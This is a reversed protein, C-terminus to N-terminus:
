LGWGKLVEAVTAKRFCTLTSTQSCNVVDVGLTALQDAAIEFASRWLYFNEQENPNNANPWENRGYFHGGTADLGIVILRTVGFQALLNMGQFGSNRGSGIAMPADLLLRDCKADAIGVLKVDPYRDAILRAYGFKLGRFEPLGKRYKWWPLECCYVADAWPSLHVAAEKIALVPMKGRMLDVDAKSASPGCCVLAAAGGDWKPWWGFRAKGLEGARNEISRQLM